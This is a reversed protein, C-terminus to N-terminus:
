PSEGQNLSPEDTTELRRIELGLARLRDLIGYLHSQDAIRGSLITVGRGPEQDMGDFASAFEDDLRGTVIIRYCNSEM